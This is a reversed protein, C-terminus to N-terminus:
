GAGRVGGKTATRCRWKPVCIGDPPTWEMVWSLWDWPSRSPRKHPMFVREGATLSFPRHRIRFRDMAAMISPASKQAPVRGALPMACGDPAPEVLLGRAGFILGHFPAPSGVRRSPRLCIFAFSRLKNTAHPASPPRHALSGAKACFDPPTRLIGSPVLMALTDIWSSDVITTSPGIIPTNLLRTINSWCTGCFVRLEITESKAELQDHLSSPFSSVKLSRSPTLHCSPLGNVAASTLHVQSRIVPLDVSFNRTLGRLDQYRLRSSTM